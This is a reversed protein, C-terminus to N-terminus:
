CVTLPTLDSVETLMKSAIDWSQKIDKYNQLTVKGPGQQCRHLLKLLNNIQPQNMKVQHTIEAFEFDERSCFPLWPEKYLPEILRTDDGTLELAEQGSVKTDRKSHPHYQIHVDGHQFGSAPGILFLTILVSPHFKGDETEDGSSELDSSKHRENEVFPPM